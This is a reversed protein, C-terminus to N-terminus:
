DTLWEIIKPRASLVGKYFAIEDPMAELSRRLGAKADTIQLIDCWPIIELRIGFLIGSTRPLRYLIQHEVRLWVEDPEITEDLRKRNQKPHHNRNGDRSLGWNERQWASEPQLRDLAIQIREALQPNLAPVPGHTQELTRGIKEPL